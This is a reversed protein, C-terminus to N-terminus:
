QIPSVIAPIGAAMKAENDAHFRLIVGFYDPDSKAVEDWLKGKHKKLACIKQLVPTRSLELLEEVTRERLMLALIHATVPRTGSRAIRAMERCTSRSGTACRRIKSTPADPWLHKACRCTDIWRRHDLVASVLSRFAIHAACIDVAGLGFPQLTLALAADLGPADLVDADIIHHIGSAEPPILRGHSQRVVARWAGSRSLDMTRSPWWCPPSRSWVIAKRQSSAPRRSTSSM